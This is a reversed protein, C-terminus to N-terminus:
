GKPPPYDSVLLRRPEQDEEIHPFRMQPEYFLNDNHDDNVASVEGVM